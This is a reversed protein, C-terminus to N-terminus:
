RRRSRLEEVVAKNKSKVLRAAEPGVAAPNDLVAVVGMVDDLLRLRGGAAEIAVILEPATMGAHFKDPPAAPDNLRRGAFETFDRAINVLEQTNAKLRNMTLIFWVLLVVNTIAVM